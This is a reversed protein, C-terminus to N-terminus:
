QIFGLRVSRILRFHFPWTTGAIIALPSPLCRSARTRRVQHLGDDRLSILNTRGRGKSPSRAATGCAPENVPIKLNALREWRPGGHATADRLVAEVALRNM